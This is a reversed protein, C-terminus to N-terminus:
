TECWEDEQPESPTRLFNNVCHGASPFSFEKLSKIPFSDVDSDGDTQFLTLKMTCDEEVGGEQYHGNRVLTPLSVDLSPVPVVQVVPVPVSASATRYTRRKFRWCIAVALLVLLTTLVLGSWLGAPLIWSSDCKNSCTADTKTTGSVTQQKGIDKCRTHNKCPSLFDTVNSYTGQECPACVTDSTRTAAVKVGEGPPCLTLLRCYDCRDNDCFYGMKCECVTNKTATCPVATRQNPDSSCGSCVKCSKLYNETATFTGNACTECQTRNTADCDAKVFTGAPCRQCCRGADRSFMQQPSCDVKGM